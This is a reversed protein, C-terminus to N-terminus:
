SSFFACIRARMYHTATPINVCPLGLAGLEGVALDPLLAATPLRRREHAHRRFFSRPSARVPVSPPGPACGKTLEGESAVGRVLFSSFHSM